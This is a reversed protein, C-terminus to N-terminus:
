PVIRRAAWRCGYAGAACAAGFLLMPLLDGTWGEGILRRLVVAVVLVAVVVGLMAMVKLCAILLTSSIPM